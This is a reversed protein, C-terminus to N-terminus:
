HNATTCWRDEGLGSQDDHVDYYSPPTDWPIPANDDWVSNETYNWTSSDIGGTEYASQHFHSTSAGADTGLANQPGHTECGWWAIGNISPTGSGGAALPAQQCVVPNGTVQKTVCFRWEYPNQVTGQGHLRISFTYTVGGVPDDQVGNNDFDVWPADCVQGSGNAFPMWVFTTQDNRITGTSGICTTTIDSGSRQKYLGFQVFNHHGFVDGDISVLEFSDSNDAGPAPTCPDLPEAVIGARAGDFNGLNREWTYGMSNQDGSACSTHFAALAPAAGIALLSSCAFALSAGAALLRRIM